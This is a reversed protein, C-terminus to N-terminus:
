KKLKKLHKRASVPDPYETYQGAALQEAVLSDLAAWDEKELEPDALKRPELIIRGGEAVISVLGGEAIGAESLLDPPITIQHRGSIRRLYPM